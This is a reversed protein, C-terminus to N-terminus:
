DIFFTGCKDCHSGCPYDNRYTLNRHREYKMDGPTCGGDKFIKDLKVERAMHIAIDSVAVEGLDEESKSLTTETSDCWNSSMGCVDYTYSYKVERCLFLNSRDFPLSFSHKFSTHDGAGCSHNPIAINVEGSFSIVNCGGEISKLIDFGSERFYIVLNGGYSAQYMMNRILGDYDNSDLKVIKKIEALQEEIEGKGCPFACEVYHGTDYFFVYPSTQRFLDEVVNSNDRDWIADRIEDEYKDYIEEAEDEDVDFTKEIDRKLEEELEEQVYYDNLYWDDVENYLDCLDGSSICRQILETHDDLSEGRSIYHLTVKKPLLDLVQEITIDKM